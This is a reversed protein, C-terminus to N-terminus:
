PSDLRVIKHVIGDVIQQWLQRAFKNPIGKKTFDTSLNTCPSSDIPDRDPKGEFQAEFRVHFRARM